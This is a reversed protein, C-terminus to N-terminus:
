PLYGTGLNRMQSQIWTARELVYAGPRNVQYRRPSPLVAALLSSDRRGLQAASRGFFERAAAEAGYIGDGFEAINLYVELIREKGWLLEILLTFYAELLKRFYSRGSWLFLNKAVQQSITSAGRVGNGRSNSELASMMSQWDFGWHQPFQQDEAVIVALQLHQSIQGISVWQHSLDPDRGAGYREFKDALMFATIPPDFFRLSLVLLGTLLLWSLLLNRLLRWLTRAM